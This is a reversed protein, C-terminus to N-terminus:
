YQFQFPAALDKHFSDLRQFRPRITLKLGSRRARAAIIRSLTIQEAETPRTSTVLRRHLLQRRPIGASPRKKAGSASSKNDLTHEYGTSLALSSGHSDGFQGDSARLVVVRRFRVYWFCRNAQWCDARGRGDECM